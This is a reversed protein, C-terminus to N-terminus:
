GGSGIERFRDKCLQAALELLAADRPEGASLSCRWGAGAAAAAAPSIAAIDIRALELGAEEVLTHFLAGARPSHLLAVAGQALVAAAQPPLMSVPDAAYVVRETVELERRAIAIRDQGCPHLVREAGDQAVLAALAAADGLGSHVTGFGLGEAVAATAEGVAYCPLHAFRGLQPGAQRAANASTLIVADISAPDPAEWEVPRVEFLPAVVAELGM